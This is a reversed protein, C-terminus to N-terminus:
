ENYTSSMTKARAKSKELGFFYKTCHEGLSTYRTKSHLMAGQTAILSLKQLESQITDIRENTKTIIAIANNSELNIIALKKHAAKLQRNLTNLKKRKQSAAFYSFSISYQRIDHKIMEWRQLPDLNVYKEHARDIIENIKSYIRPKGSTM